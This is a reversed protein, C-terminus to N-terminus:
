KPNDHKREDCQEDQQRRQRSQGLAAREAIRLGGGRARAHNLGQAAADQDEDSRWGEHGDPYDEDAIAFAILSAVAVPVFRVETPSFLIPSFVVPFSDLPLIVERVIRRALIPLAM